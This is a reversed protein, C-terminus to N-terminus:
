PLHTGASLILVQIQSGVNCAKKKFNPIFSAKRFKFDKNIGEISVRYNLFNKTSLVKWSEHVKFWKIEISMMPLVLIVINKHTNPTHTVEFFRTQLSITVKKCWVNAMRLPVCLLMLVTTSSQTDDFGWKHLLNVGKLVHQCINLTSYCILWRPM